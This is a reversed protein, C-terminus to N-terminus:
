KVHSLIWAHKTIESALKRDDPKTQLLSKILKKSSDSMWLPYTIKDIKPKFGNILEYCLVGMYWLDVHMSFPKGQVLEPATCCKPGNLENTTNKLALKIRKDSNVMIREPKIDGHIVGLQHMYALASSVSWMIEAAKKESFRFNLLKLMQDRITTEMHEFVMYINIYDEFFEFPRVINPHVLNSHIEIEHRCAGELGKSNLRNKNMVKLTLYRNSQNTSNTQTERVLFVKGFTGEALYKVTDYNELKVELKAQDM